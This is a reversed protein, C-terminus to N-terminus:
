QSGCDTERDCKQGGRENWYTGSFERQGEPVDNRKGNDETGRSPEEDEKRELRPLTSTM